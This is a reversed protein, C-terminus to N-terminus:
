CELKNKPSTTTTSTSTRTRANGAEFKLRRLSLKVNGEVGGHRLPPVCIKESQPVHEFTRFDNYIITQTDLLNSSYVTEPCFM